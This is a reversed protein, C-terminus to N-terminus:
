KGRNKRRSVEGLKKRKRNRVTKKALHGDMFRPTWGTRYNRVDHMLQLLPHAAPEELQYRNV